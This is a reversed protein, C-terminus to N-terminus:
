QGISANEISSKSLETLWRIFANLAIQVGTLGILLALNKWFADRNGAVAANVVDRLFWAFVTVSVGQLMQALTLWVIYWKKKGTVSFLWKRASSKM